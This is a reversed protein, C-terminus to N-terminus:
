GIASLVGLLPLMVSLLVLGVAGCLAAVLGFEMRSLLGSLRTEAEDQCRDALEEMAQEPVGARFGAALLGAQLGSLLGCDAVSKAFDGGKAVQGACAQLQGSLASDELLHRSREVAEELPLGSSLMLAMASVFRSRDVARGAESRSLIGSATSIGGHRRVHVLLVTGCVLLLFLAAAGIYKGAEGAM